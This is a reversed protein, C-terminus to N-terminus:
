KVICLFQVNSNLKLKVSQLGFCEYNPINFLNWKIKSILLLSLKKDLLRGRQLTQTTPLTLLL